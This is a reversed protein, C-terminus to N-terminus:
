GRIFDKIENRYKVATKYGHIYTDDLKDQSKSFVWCLDKEPRLVYVKGEKVLREMEEMQKFYNDYRNMLADYLKPFKKEYLPSLIAKEKRFDSPKDGPAKTSVVLTRDCGNAFPRDFPISYTVCGDGYHKGDIEALPFLMPLACTGRMMALLREESNRESMYVTEGSEAETMGFEYEVPSNFLKQFDFPYGGYFSEGCMNNYENQIGDLIVHARHGARLRSPTLVYRLRGRQKTVYNIASHAGGSVGCVYPFEIGDDIFYDIVGANFMCKRSGGEFVLGVKM